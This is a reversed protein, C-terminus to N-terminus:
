AVVHANLLFRSGFFDFSHGRPSRRDKGAVGSQRNVNRVHDDGLEQAPAAVGCFPSPEEGSGAAKLEVHGVRAELQRPTGLIDSRANPWTSVRKGNLNLLKSKAM